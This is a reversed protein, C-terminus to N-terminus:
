IAVDEATQVQVLRLSRKFDTNLYASGGVCDRPRRTHPQHSAKQEEDILFVAWESSRWDFRIPREWAARFNGEPVAARRQAYGLATESPKQCIAAVALPATDGTGCRKPKVTFAVSPADRSQLKRSTWRQEM